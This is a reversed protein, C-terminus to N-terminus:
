ITGHLVLSVLVLDYIFSLSLSFVLAHFFRENKGGIATGTWPGLLM